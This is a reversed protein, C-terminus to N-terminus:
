QEVLHVWSLASQVAQALRRDSTWLEAGYREALVLYHADYAAPLLFRTALDLANRHFDSESHIQLPLTLAAELASQASSVSMFGQKQYRYLANTVEYHLLAPAILHRGDIEWQEWLQHVVSDNPDAVLRIVLNADVCIWSNPM